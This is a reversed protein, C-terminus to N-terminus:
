FTTSRQSVSVVVINGDHWCETKDPEWERRYPAAQVLGNKETQLVEFTIIAAPFQFLDGKSLDKLKM